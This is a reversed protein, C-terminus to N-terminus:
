DGGESDVVDVAHRKESHVRLDALLRGCENPAKTTNDIWIPKRQERHNFELTQYGTVRIWKIQFIQSPISLVKSSKM